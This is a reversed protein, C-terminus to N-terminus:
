QPHYQAASRMKANFSSIKIDIKGKKRKTALQRVRAMRTKHSETSLRQLVAVAESKNRMVNHKKQEETKEPLLKDAIAWNFHPIELDKHDQAHTFTLLDKGTIEKLLNNLFIAGNANARNQNTNLATGKIMIDTLHQIQTATLVYEAQNRFIQTMKRRAIALKQQIKKITAQRSLLPKEQVNRFDKIHKLRKKEAKLLLKEQIRAKLKSAKEKAVWRELKDLSDRFEKETVTKTFYKKIKDLDPTEPLDLLNNYINEDKNLTNVKKQIIKVRRNIYTKKPQIWVKPPTHTEKGHVM